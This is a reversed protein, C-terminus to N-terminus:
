RRRMRVSTTRIRALRSREEEEEEDEYSTWSAMREALAPPPHASSDTCIM